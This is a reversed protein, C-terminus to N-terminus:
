ALIIDNIVGAQPYQNYDAPTVTLAYPSGLKKWATESLLYRKGEPTVLSLEGTSLRIFMKKFIVKLIGVILPSRKNLLRGHHVRNDGYYNSETLQLDDEWVTNILAGHGYRSSERTIVLDGVRFDGNLNKAMVGHWYVSAVKSQLSDGIPRFDAFKHLFTICQGGKFNEPYLTKLIPFLTM